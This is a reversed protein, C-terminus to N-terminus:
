EPDNKNKKKQVLQLKQRRVQESIRTQAPKSALMLLLVGEAVDGALEAKATLWDLYIPLPYLTINVKALYM